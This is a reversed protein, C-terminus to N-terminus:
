AALDFGLIMQGYNEAEDDDEYLVIRVVIYDSHATFAVKEFANSGDASFDAASSNNRTDINNVDNGEYIYLDFDQPIKGLKAIDDGSSLWSIAARVYRTTFDSLNVVFRIEKKNSGSYNKMLKNVDGIWFRSDHMCGYNPNGRGPLLSFYTPANSASASTLLVSKVVEPHRRYFANTALLDSVMGATYAAAAETGDYYPDQASTAGSASTYKRGIDTKREGEDFYFHSYNYIEPKASGNVYDPYTSQANCKGIGKKCYRPTNTPTYATIKKTSQNIAGVTIANAAHAEYVFNKNNASANGAAVIEVTRNDYIFNDLNRATNTYYLGKSTGGQKGKRIRLGMYVNDDEYYESSGIYVNSNKSSNKIIKYAKSVDMEHGPVFNYSSSPTQVYEIYDNHAMKIPTAYSPMYIGVKSWEPLWESYPQYDIVWGYDLSNQDGYWSEISLRSSHTANRRIPAFNSYYLQEGDGYPSVRKPNSFNFNYKSVDYGNNVTNSNMDTKRVFSTASSRSINKFYRNSKDIFGKEGDYLKKGYAVAASYVPNPNYVQLYYYDDNHNSWGRSFYAGEMAKANKLLGSARKALAHNELSSGVKQENKKIKSYDIDRYVMPSNMKSGRRGLVDYNMSAAFAGVCGVAMILTLKKM